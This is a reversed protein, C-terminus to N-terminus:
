KIVYLVLLSFACTNFNMTRSLKKEKKKQKKAEERKRILVIVCKCVFTHQQDVKRERNERM